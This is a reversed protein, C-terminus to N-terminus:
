ISLNCLRHCRIIHSLNDAKYPFLTLMTQNVGLHLKRKKESSSFRIDMHLTITKNSGRYIIILAKKM